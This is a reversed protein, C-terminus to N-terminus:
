VKQLKKAADGDTSQPEPLSPLPLGRPPPSSFAAAKLRIMIPLFAASIAVGIMWGALVDSPYHKGLYVRSYGVLLPLLLMWPRLERFMVMLLVALVMSNAAHASPFSTGRQANPVFDAPRQSWEGKDIHRTLAVAHSPRVRGIGKKIINTGLDTAGVALLIFLLPIIRRWGARVLLATLVASLALWLWIQQSLVPMVADFFPNHAAQNIWVFAAMDWSPTAFSM